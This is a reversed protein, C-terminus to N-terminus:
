KTTLRVSSLKSSSGVLGLINENQFILYALYELINLIASFYM